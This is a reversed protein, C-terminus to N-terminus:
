ALVRLADPAFGTADIRLDVVPEKPSDLAFSGKSDAAKTALPAREPARSVLWARRADITETAYISVRAGAIPQGDSNIITGTISAFVSSSTLFAPLLLSHIRM